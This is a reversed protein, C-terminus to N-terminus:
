DCANTGCQDRGAQKIDQLIAPLIIQALSKVERNTLACSKALQTQLRDQYGIVLASFLSM